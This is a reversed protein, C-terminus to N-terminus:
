KLRFPDLAEVGAKITVEIGSTDEDMYRSPIRAKPDLKTVGEGTAFPEIRVRYRGEAIGDDPAETTLRFTGDQQLAGVAQRGTTGQPVFTVLGGPVPRGDALVVSGHVPHTAVAEGRDSARCGALMVALTLVGIGRPRLLIAPAPARPRLGAAKVMCIHSDM